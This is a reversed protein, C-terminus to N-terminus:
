PASADTQTLTIVLDSLTVVKGQSANDVDTGFEFDISGEVLITDGDNTEDIDAGDALAAGELTLDLDTDLYTALAGTFGGGTVDVEAEINNGEAVVVLSDTFTLSDGPVLTVDDSEISVGNLLWEMDGSDTLALRGSEITDGDFTGTANWYALSGLSGVLVVGASAAALAGKISQDM